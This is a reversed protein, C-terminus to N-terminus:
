SDLRFVLPVRVWGEVPETGRRAPVFRWGKVADLAADDLARSRSSQDIEIKLPAGDRSVLVRLMVTGEEGSRRATAPYAPPPNRLYAANFGPPTIAPAQPAAAAAAPADSRVAPRPETAPADAAAPTEVPLSVTAPAPVATSAMVPRSAPRPLPQPLRPATAAAPAPVPTAAAPRPVDAVMVVDLVPLTEPVPLSLRWQPLGLLLAAHLAVSALLCVALARRSVQPVDTM